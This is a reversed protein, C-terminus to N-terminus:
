NVDRVCRISVGRRKDFSSFELLSNNSKLIYVFSDSYNSSDSSWWCGIQGMSSILFEGLSNRFSGPNGNFKSQNSANANPSSWLGNGDEITGTSKMKGGASVAGGLYDKLLNWEDKSPVHWGDPCVNRSDIAAQWNYLKGFNSGHSQNNDLYSWAGYSLSRWEQHSSVEPIQNGNAYKSTRLNEAMWEQEGLLVTSYTNGDIDTVSGISIEDDATSSCSSIAYASILLIWLPLYSTKVVM